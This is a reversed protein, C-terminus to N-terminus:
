EEGEGNDNFLVAVQYKSSSFRIWEVKLKVKMTKRESKTTKTRASVVWEYESRVNLSFLVFSSHYRRIDDVSVNQACDFTSENEL